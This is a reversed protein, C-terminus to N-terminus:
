NLYKCKIKNRTNERVNKNKAYIMKYFGDTKKIEFGKCMLFKCLEKYNRKEDLDHYELVIHKIRRFDNDSLGSLIDYECGECDIKLFDIDGKIKKLINKISILKIKEFHSVNEVIETSHAAKNLNSIYLKAKGNRNSVGYNFIKINKMCNLKINEKLMLFNEKEPEFSYIIGDKAYFAAFVSFIGIHAGIDIVTYNNKIKFGNPTYLKKIWIENFITKDNTKPRIKYKLGNRLKVYKFSFIGTYNLIYGPWNKIYRLIGFFIEIYLFINKLM